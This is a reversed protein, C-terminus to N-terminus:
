WVARSVGDGPNSGFPNMGDTTLEMPNLPRNPAHANRRAAIASFARKEEVSIPRFTRPVSTSHEFALPKTRTRFFSPRASSTTPQGVVHLEHLSRLLLFFGLRFFYTWCFFGCFRRIITSFDDKSGVFIAHSPAHQMAVVLFSLLPPKPLRVFRVSASSVDLRTANLTTMM